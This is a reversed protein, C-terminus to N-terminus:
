SFTTSLHSEKWSVHNLHDTQLILLQKFPSKPVCKFTCDIRFTRTDPLNALINESSFMVYAFNSKIVTGQYFLKPETKHLTKGIKDIIETNEFYEKIEPLTQPNRPIGKRQHYRMTRHRKAFQMDATAEQNGICEEDFIERPRKNETAARIKFTNDVKLRNYTKEQVGHIHTSAGDTYSCKQTSDVKVRAKCEEVYCSYYSVSDNGSSRKFLHKDSSYLLTSNIKFGVSIEYEM